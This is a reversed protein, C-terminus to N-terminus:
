TVERAEVLNGPFKVTVESRQGQPHGLPTDGREKTTRNM